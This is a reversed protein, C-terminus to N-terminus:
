CGPGLCVPLPDGTPDEGCENPGPPYPPEGGLYLYDLILIPDTIDITGIDDVDATDPCIFIGDGLFLVRLIIIADTIGLTKSFDV